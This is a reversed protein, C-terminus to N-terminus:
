RESHSFGDPVLGLAAVKRSGNAIRKLLEEELVSFAKEETTGNATCEDRLIAMESNGLQELDDKRQEIRQRLRYEQRILLILRRAVSEEPQVALRFDDLLSNIRDMDGRAYAENIQMTIETRYRRDEDNVAMDPHVVKMAKRYAAKLDSTIIVTPEPFRNERQEAQSERLREAAEEAATM